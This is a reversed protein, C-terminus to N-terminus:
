LIILWPSCEKWYERWIQQTQLHSCNVIFILLFRGVVREDSVWVGQPDRNFGLWQARSRQSWMRNEKDLLFNLERRLQVVLEHNGGKASDEEAKWLLEKKLRLQNKLAGM